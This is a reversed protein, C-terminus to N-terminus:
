AADDCKKLLEIKQSKFEPNHHEKIAQLFTSNYEGIACLLEYGIQAHEYYCKVMKLKSFKKIRGKTLKNLIVIMSKEIPNLPYKIKGIDHLLGIRIMESKDEVNLVKNQVVMNQAVKLCHAQEYVRLKFFLKQEKENLYCKVYSIDEASMKATIAYLFQKIRYIM